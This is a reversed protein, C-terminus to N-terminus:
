DTVSHRRLAPAPGGPGGSGGPGGGKKLFLEAGFRAAMCGVTFGTGLGLVTNLRRLVTGTWKQGSSSASGGGLLSDWSYMLKSPGSPEPLLGVRLQDRDAGPGDGGTGGLVLRPTRGERSWLTGDEKDEEGALVSCFRM